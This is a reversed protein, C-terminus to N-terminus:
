DLSISPMGREVVGLADLLSSMDDLNCSTRAPQRTPKCRTPMSKSLKLQLQQRKMLNHNSKKLHLKVSFTKRLPAPQVIADSGGLRNLQSRLTKSKRLM